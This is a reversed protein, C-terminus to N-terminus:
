IMIDKNRENKLYIITFCNELVLFISLKKISNLDQKLFIDKKHTRVSLEFKAWLFLFFGSLILTKRHSYRKQLGKIASFSPNSGEFGNQPKCSKWDHARSRVLRNRWSKCM